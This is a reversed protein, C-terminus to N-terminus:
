EITEAIPTKPTINAPRDILRNPRLDTVTPAPTIEPKKATNIAKIGLIHAEATIHITDAPKPKADITPKLLKVRSCTGPKRPVIIDKFEDNRLIPKM